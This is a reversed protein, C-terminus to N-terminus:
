NGVIQAANRYNILHINGIKQEEIGTYILHPEVCRNGVMKEFNKIGRLFSSNYTKSSKIEIPILEHGRQYILDIETRGSIQYFYLRPDLGRNLRAKILELVVLNEVLNGRLPDRSLQSINEIGLLYTVLGM